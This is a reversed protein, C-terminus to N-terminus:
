RTPMVLRITFTYNVRQARGEFMVPSYRSSTLNRVVAENMHPLGKIVSCGEVAGSETIVCRVIMV